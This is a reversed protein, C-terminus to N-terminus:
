FFSYAGTHCWIYKIQRSLELIVGHLHMFSRVHVGNFHHYPFRHAQLLEVWSDHYYWLICVQGFTKLFAESSFWPLIFDFWWGLTCRTVPSPWAFWHLDVFRLRLPFIGWYPILHTIPRSFFWITKLWWSHLGPWGFGYSFWVWLDFLRIGPSLMIVYLHRFIRTQSFPELSAGGLSWSLITFWDIM